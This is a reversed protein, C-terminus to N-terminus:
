IFRRKIVFWVIKLWDILPRFKVQSKGLRKRYHIPFQAIKCGTKVANIFFDAELTFGESTLNFRDLVEKRFGWLGSCLDRVRHGYLITALASLFINGFANLAPMAGKEKWKRYGMAVDNDYTTLAYVIEPLNNLPYTYDADAQIVIDSDKLYPLIERFANGKGRSKQTIVKAGYSRAIEATRDSSADIVLPEFTYVLPPLGYQPSNVEELVKGIAEEENRSPLVVTVKL